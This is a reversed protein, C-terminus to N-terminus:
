CASRAARALFGQVPGLTARRDGCVPQDAAPQRYVGAALLVAFLLLGAGRLAPPSRRPMKQCTNLEDCTAILRPELRFSPPVGSVAFIIECKTRREKEGDSQRQKRRVCDSKENTMFDGTFRGYGWPSSGCIRWPCLRWGNLLPALEGPTEIVAEGGGSSVVTMQDRLAIRAYRPLPGTLRAIIRHQQRLQALPQTHM